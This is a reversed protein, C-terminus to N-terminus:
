RRGVLVDVPVDEVLGTGPRGENYPRLTARVGAEFEGRRDTAIRDPPLTSYLHGLLYDVDLPEEFHLELVDVQAFGAQALLRRREQLTQQDAGCTGTVPGFWNKLYTGLARTWDREGLWLPRGHTIVAIGGGPRLLRGAAAFVAAGDMWHLANAVTLLGWRAEGTARILAPLDQDAALGCVLNIVHEEQARRRLQLLMDPEPDLALVGALRAALGVAVQGTGTGLDIARDEPGLGLRTVLADLVAAPVDRRFRRYAEANQVAFVGRMYALSVLVVAPRM